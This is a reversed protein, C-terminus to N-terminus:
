CLIEKEYYKRTTSLIRRLRVIVGMSTIGFHEGIEDLKKAEFFRMHILERDEDTLGSKELAEHVNSCTTDAKVREQTGDELQSDMMDETTGSRFAFEDRIFQLLTYKIWKSLLKKDRLPKGVIYAISVLEDYDIGPQVYRKAYYHAWDLVVKDPLM